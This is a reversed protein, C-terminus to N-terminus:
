NHKQCYEDFSVVGEGNAINLKLNIPAKCEKLKCTRYFTYGIETKAISNNNTRLGFENLQKELELKIYNIEYSQVENLDSLQIKARINYISQWVEINFVM